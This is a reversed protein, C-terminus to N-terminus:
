NILEQLLFYMETNLHMLTLQHVNYNVKKRGLFQVKLMTTFQVLHPQKVPGIMAEDEHLSYVLAPYWM